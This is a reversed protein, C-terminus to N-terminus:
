RSPTPDLGRALRRSRREPSRVVLRPDDARVTGAGVLIADCGARVDDVRDLDAANSLVLRHGAANDLYGDLSLSCSLLVYPRTM